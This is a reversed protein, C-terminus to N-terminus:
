GAEVELHIENTRLFWPMFPPNYRAWLPEGKAVLGERALGAKLTALHEDYNSKSWTGSYRIVAVTRAPLLRLYVRPDKPEPLTDLSFEAPMMFQVLWTDGAERAQTVPATMAIKRTGRNNGFIYGALRSFAENGVDKQAGEVRTEAVVYPAYRRVEFGDFAQVVEYKPTEIAMAPAAALTLLAGVLVPTRRFPRM